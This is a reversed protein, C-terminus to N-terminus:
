NGTADSEKFQWGFLEGYFKKCAQCEDDGFREVFNVPTM